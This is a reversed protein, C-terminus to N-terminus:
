SAQLLLSHTAVWKFSIVNGIITWLHIKMFSIM